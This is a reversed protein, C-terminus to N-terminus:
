DLSQIPGFSWYREGRRVGSGGGPSAPTLPSTLKFCVMFVSVRANRSYALFGSQQRLRVSNMQCVTNRFNNAHTFEGVIGDDYRKGNSLYLSLHRIQTHISNQPVVKFGSQTLYSHQVSLAQRVELESTTRRNRRLGFSPQEGADSRRRQM